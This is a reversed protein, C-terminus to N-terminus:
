GSKTPQSATAELARRHLTTIKPLVEEADEATVEGAYDLTGSLEDMHTVSPKIKKKLLNAIKENLVESAPSNRMYNSKTHHQAAEVHAAAM